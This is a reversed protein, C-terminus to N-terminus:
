AVLKNMSQQENWDSYEKVLWGLSEVDKANDGTATFSKNLAKNLKTNLADIKGGELIKKAIDSYKAPLKKPGAPKRETASPDFTLASSVVDALKQQDAPSVNHTTVIRDFFAQEKEVYSTIPEGKANKKVNGDKDKVEESHREVKFLDDMGTVGIQTVNGAADKVEPQGHLLVDRFDNLVGRYIVNKTAEDLCAGSRKALSDFEEVTSPVSTTVNLGFSKNIVTKM